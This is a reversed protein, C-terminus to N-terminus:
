NVNELIVPLSMSGGFCRKARSGDSNQLCLSILVQAVHSVTLQM